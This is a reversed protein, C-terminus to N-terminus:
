IGLPLATSEKIVTVAVSSNVSRVCAIRSLYDLYFAEYAKINKTVIKLLFDWEGTLTYCELVEARDRIAAEFEALADRGTTALKVHAFITVDLGLANRDLLAVRSKIVGNQELQQIRRWCTTTSIRAQAAVEAVSLAGQRQLIDLLRLDLRDIGVPPKNEMKPDNESHVFRIIRDGGLSHLLYPGKGYIIAM